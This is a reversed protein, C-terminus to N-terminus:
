AAVEERSLYQVANRLITPDDRFLGLAMNCKACLLGRVIQTGHDHDMQPATLADRCIACRGDQAKLLVAHEDSTMNYKMKLLRGTRANYARQYAADAGPRELRRRRKYAAREVRHARTWRSAVENM